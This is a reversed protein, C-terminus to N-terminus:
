ALSPWSLSGWLLLFLDLSRVNTSVPSLWHGLSSRAQSLSSWLLLLLDLSPVNASVPSLWHGLGSCAQSLSDVPDTCPLLGQPLPGSGSVEAPGPMLRLDRLFWAQALVETPRPM